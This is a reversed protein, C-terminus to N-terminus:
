YSCSASGAASDIVLDGHEADIPDIEERDLIQPISPTSPHTSPSPSLAAPKTITSLKLKEMADRILTVSLYHHNDVALQLANNGQVNTKSLIEIQDEIELTMIALLISEIAEPKFSAAFMLTNHGTQDKQDDTHCQKLMVTKESPLNKLAEFLPKLADPQYRTALMLANWGNINIQSLLTAKIADDQLSNVAELLSEVADPHYRAALLFINWRNTTAQSLIATKLTKDQLSNIIKILPGLADPQFRIALMLANWGGNSIQSLMKMDQLNNIYSILTDLKQFGILRLPNDRYYPYKLLENLCYKRIEAIRRGLGGKPKVGSIHDLMVIVDRIDDIEKQKIQNLIQEVAKSHHRTQISIRNSIGGDYTNLRNIAYDLFPKNLIKKPIDTLPPIVNNKQHSTPKVAVKEIHPISTDPHHFFGTSGATSSSALASSTTPQLSSSTSIISSDGKPSLWSYISNTAAMINAHSPHLEGNFHGTVLDLATKGEKNAMLLIQAQQEPSLTSIRSLISEVSQHNKTILALMLANLRNSRDVQMLIEVQKDPNLFAMAALIPTVAKPYFNAAIMLANFDYLGDVQKLYCGLGELVNTIYSSLDERDSQGARSLGELLAEMTITDPNITLAFVRLDELYQLRGLNMPLIKRITTNSRLYRQVETFFPSISGELAPTNLPM